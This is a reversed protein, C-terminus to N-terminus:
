VKRTASSEVAVVVVVDVVREMEWVLQLVLPLTTWGLTGTLAEEEVVEEEDMGEDEEEEM